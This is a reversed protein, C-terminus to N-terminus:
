IALVLAQVFQFFTPNVTIQNNTTPKLGGKMEDIKSDVLQLMQTAPKLKEEMKTEVLHLIARHSKDFEEIYIRKLYCKSDKKKLHADLNFKRDFVHDCYKCQLAKNKPRDINLIRCNSNGIHNIMNLKNDFCKACKKCSYM